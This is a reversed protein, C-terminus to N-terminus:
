DSIPNRYPLPYVKQDADIPKSYNNDEDPSAPAIAHFTLPPSTSCDHSQHGNTQEVSRTPKIKSHFFNNIQLTRKKLQNSIGNTTSGNPLFTATSLPRKVCIRSSKIDNGNTSMNNVSNSTTLTTKINRISSKTTM